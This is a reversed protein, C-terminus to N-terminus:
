KDNEKDMSRGLKQLLLENGSSILIKNLYRRDFFRIVDYRSVVGALKRDGDVVPIPNVSHHESFKKALDEITMDPEVTLPEINMMDKVKIDELELYHSDLDKENAKGDKIKELLKQLGTLHMSSKDSIMDYSTIVGVLNKNVDIVPFGDYNYEGLLKAAAMLNDEPRLTAIWGATM